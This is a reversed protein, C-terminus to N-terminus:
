RGYTATANTYGTSQARTVPKQDIVAENHAQVLNQITRKYSSVPHHLDSNVHASAVTVGLSQAVPRASKAVGGCPQCQNELSFPIENHYSM